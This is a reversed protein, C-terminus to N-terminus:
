FAVAVALPHVEVQEGEREALKGVQHHVKRFDLFNIDVGKHHVVLLSDHQIGM